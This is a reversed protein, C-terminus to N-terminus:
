EVIFRMSQRFGAVGRFEASLIGIGYKRPLDVKMVSNGGAHQFRKSMLTQGAANFLRLSYQGEPLEELRINMERGKVPNSVLSIATGDARGNVRVVNSLVFSGDMEHASIRYYIVGSAPQADTESYGTSQNPMRSKIEHFNKGDTSREVSYRSVGRSDAVKWDIRNAGAERKVSVMIFKVPLVGVPRLVIRLRNAARSLVDSTTVMNILNPQDPVLPTEIGTYNDQLVAMYSAGLLDKIKIELKYTKIKLATLNFFVTDASHFSSRREVSFIENLNKIGISEGTNSLKRADDSDVLDSYIDDMELLNGDLLTEASVSDAYLRTRIISSLQLPRDPRSVLASGSVKAGEPVQFTGTGGTTHVVFAQGSQIFNSMSVDDIGYSGGGPTPTYGSGNFTFTQYAGLGQSGSLRPDWVYYYDDVNASKSALKFDIASPFPNGIATYKGAGVSIVDQNGQVL